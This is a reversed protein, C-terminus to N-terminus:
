PKQTHRSIHMLCAVFGKQEAFTLTGWYRAKSNPLDTHAQLFKKTYNNAETVFIRLFQVTYFM